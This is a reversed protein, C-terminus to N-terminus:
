IYHLIARLALTGCIHVTDLAIKVFLLAETCAERPAQSVYLVCPCHKGHSAPSKEKSGKTGFCVGGGRWRHSLDGTRQQRMRNNPYNGVLALKEMRLVAHLPGM